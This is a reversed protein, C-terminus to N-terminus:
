SLQTKVISSILKGEAKGAVKVTVEKMVNGMDKMSSAGLDKIVQDVIVKVEVETLQTPLFGAIVEVQALEPEALDQRSQEQFIAASDKRQKVLRQLIQIEQAETLEDNGGSQTKVLLLESKIARLAELSVQDKAKMAVKMAAMIEKSLSM